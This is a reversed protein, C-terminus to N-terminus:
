YLLLKMSAKERANYLRTSYSTTMKQLMWSKWWGLTGKKAIIQRQGRKLDRKAEKLRILTGNEPNRPKGERKWANYESKIKMALPKLHHEWKYTKQKRKRAQQPSCEITTERLIQNTRGVIVDLPTHIDYNEMM